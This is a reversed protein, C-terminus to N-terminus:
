KLEELEKKVRELSYRANDTLQRQWCNNKRSWRFGNKKLVDRVNSEPKDDFFLQLRMIEVNEVTRFYKNESETNGETKAAMLKKLRGEIRHIEANNNSLQYTAFPKGFVLAIMKQLRANEERLKENEKELAETKSKMAELNIGDVYRADTCWKTVTAKAVGYRQTIEDFTMGQIKHMNVIFKKFNASYRRTTDHNPGTPEEPIEEIKNKKVESKLQAKEPEQPMEVEGAIEEKELRIGMKALDDIEDMLAFLRKRYEKNM